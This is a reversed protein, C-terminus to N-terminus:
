TRNQTFSQKKKKKGELNQFMTGSGGNEEREGTGLVDKFELSGVEKKWVQVVLGNFADNYIIEGRECM